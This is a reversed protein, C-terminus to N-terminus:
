LKSPERAVTSVEGAFQDPSGLSHASRTDRRVDRRDPVMRKGTAGAVTPPNTYRYCLPRWFRQALNSEQIGRERGDGRERRAGARRVCPAGMAV